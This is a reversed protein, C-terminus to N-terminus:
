RIYKQFQQTNHFAHEVEASKIAQLLKQVSVHALDFMSLLYACYLFREFLQIVWMNAVQIKIVILFLTVQCCLCTESYSHPLIFFFQNCIVVSISNQTELSVPISSFLLVLFVPIPLWISIQICFFLLIKMKIINKRKSFIHMKERRLYLYPMSIFKQIIKFEM